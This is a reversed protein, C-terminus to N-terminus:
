FGMLQGPVIGFALHVQLKLDPQLRERNKSHRQSSIQFHPCKNGADVVIWVSALVESYSIGFVCMIDYPSGGAFYCLAAGLRISPTIPGNPIPPFLYRGGDRGGTREYRRSEDIASSNHPELIFYLHWFGDLSMRFAWRFIRAIMVEFVEAVQIPQRPQAFRGSRLRSRERM